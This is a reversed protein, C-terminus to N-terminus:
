KYSEHSIPMSTDYRLLGIGMKSENKLLFSTLQLRHCGAIFQWRKMEFDQVILVVKVM